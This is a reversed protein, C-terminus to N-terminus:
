FIQKAFFIERERRWEREWSGPSTIEFLFLIQMLLARRKILDKHPPFPSKLQLPSLRQRRMRTENLNPEATDALLLVLM